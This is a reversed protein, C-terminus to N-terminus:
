RLVKGPRMTLASWTHRLTALLTVLAVGALALWPMSYMRPAHEVFGARYHGLALFALPLGLVAAVGVLSGLERGLLMAIQARGAGYLKRLVIERARRQVISASLAVM